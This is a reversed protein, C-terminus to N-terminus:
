FNTHGVRAQMEDSFDQYQERMQAMTDNIIDKSINREKMITEVNEFLSRKPLAGMDIGHAAYADGTGTASDYDSDPVFFNSPLEPPMKTTCDNDTLQMMYGLIQPGPIRIVCGNSCSQFAHTNESMSQSKSSNYSFCLVGGSNSSSEEAVKKQDYGKSEDNFIKITIDKCIVYGMPFAPLLGDNVDTLKVNPKKLDEPKDANAPYKTWRNHPNVHYYSNSQKFFQPQFWGGRDVTVLTARFGVEVRNETSSTETKSDGGSKSSESGYSALWLNVNSKSAEAYSSDSQKTYDSKVIHFMSIEQWRSGGSTGAEPFLPVDELKPDKAPDPAVLRSDNKNLAQYRTTLEEIEKSLSSMQLRIQEQQQKTDTAEALALASLAQTYSRSARTLESQAAASAEMDTQLQSVVDTALGLKEGLINLQPKSLKGAANIATKAMSLVNNTYSSALKEQASDYARQAQEVKSKLEEASGKTGGILVVLQQNLMDLQSSKANIQNEILVPNQTLDEMKFSTSLSEFWDIPTMQVPYVKMAGDLSSMSAERLRDKADQLEEAASKIDMYGMYERVNHYFGRVVADAYKAALQSQRVATIHALKRTLANLARASDDSGLQLQLAAEIMHDRELEWAQKAQLYEEYLVNSLEIRNMSSGADAKKSQGFAPSDSFANSAPTVGSAGNHNKHQADVLKQVWSSVKVEKLLWQRIQNQQKGLGTDQFIPLLNNLISDYVISLNVGNPGGVVTDVDYLQDVLRFESENVVVPKIFQGYIGATKTDWAYQSMQLFRGPFQLVFIQGGGPSFFKKFSSIIVDLFNGDSPSAVAKAPGPPGANSGTADVGESAASHQPAPHQLANWTVFKNRIADASTLKMFEEKVPGTVGAVDLAKSLTWETANPHASRRPYNLLMYSKDLDSLVNNPPVDIRELNMEKPMFYMMISTLDMRSYNSVDKTNYVDIIQEQVQKRSWGQTRTYFRYVADEDLTLAGGRAPSQHEHLMGLAHGFEHLITAREYPEMTPTETDVWGLNMTPGTRINVNQKGVYSWSGVNGDFDIRLQGDQDVKRFTINTYWEWEKIALDVKDQQVKTGGVFSYTVTSNNAWLLASQSVVANVPPLAGANDEHPDLLTGARHTVDACTRTFWTEPQSEGDDDAAPTTPPSDASLVAPADLPPLTGDTDNPSITNLPESM